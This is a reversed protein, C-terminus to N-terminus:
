ALRTKLDALAELCSEEGPKLELAKKFERIARLTWGRSAFLRGLNMYPFHPSEYRKAKKAREFWDIAEELKGQSVLYSGIDNYPNGLDRDLEIAKLCERIALDYRGHSSYAWGLYAHAVATPYLRISKSYIPIASATKGAFHLKEADERILDARRKLFGCNLDIVAAAEILTTLGTKKSPRNSARVTKPSYTRTKQLDWEM